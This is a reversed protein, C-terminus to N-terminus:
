AYAACYYTQRIAQRQQLEPPILSAELQESIGHEGNYSGQQCQAHIRFGEEM